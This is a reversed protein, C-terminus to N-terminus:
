ILSAHDAQLRSTREYLYSRFHKVAEVIALLKKRFSCYNKEFALIAKSYCAVVVERGDQVQYPVAGVNHDSADTDM